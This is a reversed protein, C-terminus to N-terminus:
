SRLTSMIHKNFTHVCTVVTHLLWVDSKERRRLCSYKRWRKEPPTYVHWLLACCDYTMKERGRWCSYECWIKSRDCSLVCVNRQTNSLQHYTVLNWFKSSYRKYNGAASTHLIIWFQYECPNKGINNDRLKMSRGMKHCVQVTSVNWISGTYLTYANDCSDFGLIEITSFTIMHDMHIHM